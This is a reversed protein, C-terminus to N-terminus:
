QNMNGTNGSGGGAQDRYNHGLGKLFVLEILIRPTKPYTMCESRLFFRLNSDTLPFADDDDDTILVNYDPNGDNDSDGELVCKGTYYGHPDPFTTPSVTWLPCGNGSGDLIDNIDGSNIAIERRARALGAEACYLSEKAAKMLRVSKTGSIQLFLAIGGGGLLAVLLVSVLLMASGNEPNRENSEQKHVQKKM